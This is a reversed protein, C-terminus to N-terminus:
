KLRTKETLLKQMMGQKIAKYKDRKKELAEIKIDMDTLNLNVRYNKNPIILHILM